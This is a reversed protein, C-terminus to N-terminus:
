AALKGPRVCNHNGGGVVFRAARRHPRRLPEFSQVIEAIEPRLQELKAVLRRASLRQALLHEPQQAGGSECRQAIMQRPDVM